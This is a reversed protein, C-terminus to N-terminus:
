REKQQHPHTTQTHQSPLTQHSLIRATSFRQKKPATILTLPTRSWQNRQLQVRQATSRQGAETRKNGDENNNTHGTYRLRNYSSHKLAGAPGKAGREGAPTEKVETQLPLCSEGSATGKETSPQPAIAPRTQQRFKKALFLYDGQATVM